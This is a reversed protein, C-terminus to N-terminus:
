IACRKNWVNKSGVFIQRMVHTNNNLQVCLSVCTKRCLTPSHQGVKLLIPIHRCPAINYYYEESEFKMFIRIRATVHLCARRINAQQLM